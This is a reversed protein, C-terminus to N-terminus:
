DLQAAIRNARVLDDPSNLNFFSLMRPDIALYEAQEVYRLRLPDFLPSIPLLGAEIRDKMKSQCTRAYIAHLPEVMGGALRPVVADYGEAMELMRTLLAANLFPMDCAVVISLPCEAALLGTYIGGLPGKGPYADTVVTAVDGVPVDMKERSTVVVIQSSIPALVGMIREIV